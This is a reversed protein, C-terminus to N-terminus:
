EGCSPAVMWRDESAGTRHRPSPATCPGTGARLRLPAGPGRWRLPLVVDQGRWCPGNLLLLVPPRALASSLGRRARVPASSSLSLFGKDSGCSPNPWCPSSLSQVRAQAGRTADYPIRGRRSSTPCSSPAHSRERRGSARLGSPPPPPVSSSPSASGSPCATAGLLLPCPAVSTPSIMPNTTLMGFCLHL